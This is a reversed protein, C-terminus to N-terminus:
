LPELSPSGGRFRHHQTWFDWLNWGFVKVMCFRILSGIALPWGPGVEESPCPQTHLIFVVAVFKYIGNHTGCQVPLIGQGWDCSTKTSPVCMYTCTCLCFGFRGCVISACKSEFRRWYGMNAVTYLMMGGKWMSAYRYHLTIHIPCTSWMHVYAIIDHTYDCM